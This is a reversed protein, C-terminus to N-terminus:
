TSGALADVLLPNSIPTPYPDQLNRSHCIKSFPGQGTLVDQVTLSYSVNPLPCYFDYSGDSLM